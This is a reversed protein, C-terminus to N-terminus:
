PFFFFFTLNWIQKAKRLKCELALIVIALYFFIQYTNLNQGARMVAHSHSYSLKLDGIFPVFFDLVGWCPNPHMKCCFSEVVSLFFFITWFKWETKRSQIPKQKWQFLYIHSYIKTKKNKKPHNYGKIREKNRQMKNKIFKAPLVVKITCVYM